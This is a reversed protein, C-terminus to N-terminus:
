FIKPTGTGVTYVTCGQPGCPPVCAASKFRTAARSKNRKVTIKGTINEPFVTFTDPTGTGAVTYVGSGWVHSVGSGMQARCGGM